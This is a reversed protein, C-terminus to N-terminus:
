RIFKKINSIKINNKISSDGLIVLNHGEGKRVSHYKIADFNASLACDSIFRTFTYHPNYWGQGEKPSQVLSSWQIMNIIHDYEKELELLDLIKIPESIEIEAFIMGTEPKRLEYFCTLPTDGLYLVPVGAHNYRGEKVIERPPHMFDGQTYVKGDEIVRARYYKEEIKTLQTTKSMNIIADYIEKVLPHSLLLFPTRRAIDDIKQLEYEFGYSYDFPFNYPYINDTIAENCRPCLIYQLYYNYEEESFYEQLRSGSYFSSTDIMNCQFDLDRPYISPWKEIFDNYCHGCCVIDASFWSDLEAYFVDEFFNISKNEDVEIFDINKLM